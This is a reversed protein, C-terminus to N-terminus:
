PIPCELKVTTGMGPASTIALQGKMELARMEMNKLGNGGLNGPYTRETNGSTSFGKGNDTIILFLRGRNLEIQVTLRTCEAYKLANNVAEKFILYVNKRKGMELNTRALEESISFSFAINKAALLPKAYSEMRAIIKEMTDNRPNIAWVIDNMESIMETSANGIKQLVEELAGANNKRNQIEAVQSYVSISSLTSGINDHLDSAIKNRMAQRKLIENVRYRYLAYVAAAIVAACLVFFWWRKWVPPIIRLSLAAEHPSWSGPTNTARIRLVYDRGELNSFSVFNRTGLDIWENNFGELKYAYQVPTGASFDPAAFEITFYNQKYKLTVRKEHLLNSYQQGFIELGTFYVRPPESTEAVAAPNFEIFYNKGAAMMNGNPAKYLYGSIGGTKEMDPLQFSSFTRNVPNYRHLNGTSIMWVQQQADTQIGEALNASASIHTFKKETTNYFNLGGGYTSIWLNNKGDGTIDYVQNSSLMGPKGPNNKHYELVPGPTRKWE